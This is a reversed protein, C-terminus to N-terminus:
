LHRDLVARAVRCCSSALEAFEGGALHAASVARASHAPPRSTAGPCSRELGNRSRERHVDHGRIWGGLTDTDRIRRMYRVIVRCEYEDNANNLIELAEGRPFQKLQWILISKNDKNSELVKNSLIIAM